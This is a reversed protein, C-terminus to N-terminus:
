SFLPKLLPSAKLNKLSESLGLVAGARSEDSGEDGRRGEFGAALHGVLAARDAVDMSRQLVGLRALTEVGSAVAEVPADVGFDRLLALIDLRRDQTLLLGVLLRLTPDTIMARLPVRTAQRREESLVAALQSEYEPWRRGAADLLAAGVANTWHPSRWADRMVLFVTIMDSKEFLSKAMSIHDEPRVKAVLSLCQLRRIRQQDVGGLDIAIHPRLYTYLRRENQAISHTRVVVTVSPRAIHFASHIFEEGLRIEQVHGQQLIRSRRVGVHGLRLEPGIEATCAFAFETQLSSGELITFAGTFSHDHISTTNNVWFLAQIHFRAHWYLTLPPEGFGSEINQQFPLNHSSVAWRLLDLYHLRSHLSAQELLRAALAPFQNLDFNLDRWGALLADGLEGFAVDVSQFRMNLEEQTSLRTVGDL